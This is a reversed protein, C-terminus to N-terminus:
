GRMRRRRGGKRGRKRRYPYRDILRQGDIAALRLHHHMLGGCVAGRQVARQSRVHAGLPVLGGVSRPQRAAHSERGGVCVCESVCLRERHKARVCVCVCVRVCEPM